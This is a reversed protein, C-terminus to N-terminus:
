SFFTPSDKKELVRVSLLCSFSHSCWTRCWICGFMSSSCMKEFISKMSNVNEYLCSSSLICFPLSHVLLQSLLSSACDFHLFSASMKHQLHHCLHSFLPQYLLHMTIAKMIIRGMQRYKRSWSSFVLCHLICDDFCLTDSSNRQKLCLHGLYVVQLCLLTM